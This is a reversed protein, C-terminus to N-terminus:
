RETDAELYREPHFYVTALDHGDDPGLVCVRAVPDTDISDTVHNEVTESLAADAFDGCVPCEFDRWFPEDTPTDDNDTAM